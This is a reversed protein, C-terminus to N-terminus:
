SASGFFASNAAAICGTPRTPLTSSIALATSYRHLSPAAKVVPWAKATSPPAVAMQPSKLRPLDPIHGRAGLGARDVEVTRFVVQKYSKAMIGVGSVQTATCGTAFRCYEFIAKGGNPIPLPSLAIFEAVSRFLM